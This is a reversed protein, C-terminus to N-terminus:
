PFSISSFHSPVQTRLGLGEYDGKLSSGGRRRGVKDKGIANVELDWRSIDGEGWM